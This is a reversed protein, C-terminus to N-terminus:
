IVHLQLNTLILQLNTPFIARRHIHVTRYTYVTLIVFALKTIKPSKFLYLAGLFYGKTNLFCMCYCRTRRKTNLFLPPSPLMMCIWHKLFLLFPLLFFIQPLPLLMSFGYSVLFFLFPLLM